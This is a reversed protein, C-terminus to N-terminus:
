ATLKRYKKRPSGPTRGNMMSGDFGNATNTLVLVIIYMYLTRLRSNKWWKVRPFTRGAFFFHGKPPREPVIKQANKSKVSNLLGMNDTSVPAFPENPKPHHEFADLPGGIAIYNYLTLRM